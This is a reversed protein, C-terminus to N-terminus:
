ETILNFLILMIGTTILESGTTMLIGDRLELLLVVKETYTM